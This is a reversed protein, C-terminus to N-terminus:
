VTRIDSSLGVSDDKQFVFQNCGIGGGCTTLRKLNYGMQHYFDFIGEPSSVEFPYGGVWDVLNTSPSMGRNKEYERLTAFPRAKVFDRVITPGWLRVACAALLLKRILKPSHVYAKKIRRWTRSRGGQDNYIAIFLTGDQKVCQDANRLANWMEGTHHLVGWSYVIDFVGLQRIYDEDLASGEEIQWDPDDPFYRRRLETACAVSAPDFDLSHVRAGLKRASLSFLGSGCGIDLFSQGQLDDVELMNRLSDVATDIRDDNLVRLFRSWNKGFEFRQGTEIEVAHSM